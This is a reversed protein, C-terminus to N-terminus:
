VQVNDDESRRDKSLELDEGAGQIEVEAIAKREQKRMTM